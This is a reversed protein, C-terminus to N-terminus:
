APRRSGDQGGLEEKLVPAHVEPKVDHTQREMARFRANPLAAALARNGDQMWAPSRTGAMVLTPATVSRWREVPLRTGPGVSRAIRGDYPLTHAVATLKRWVPTLRMIGTVIRPVGVGRLFATLAASRDNRALDDEIRDWPVASPPRAGEAVVPAEYLALRRVGQLRSAAELALVAGSSVGWLCASGGVERLLAAIDEVEREVAYPPTDGSEGRGRRDYIVVEFHSALNKALARSPGTERWCLAGDVLLLPAGRGIRECAIVTGDGSRVRVSSKM